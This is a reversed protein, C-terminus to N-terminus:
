RERRHRGRREGGVRHGQAFSEPLEALLLYGRQKPDLLSFRFSAADEAEQRNIRGNLATDMAAVPEPIRLLDFRGAGRPIDLGSKDRRTARIDSDPMYVDEGAGAQIVGDGGYTGTHLESALSDEYRQLERGDIVGDHDLDLSAFFRLFDATFESQTLKGDHNADARAFWDAVPYPADAPARFAEGSPAIFVQQLASHRPAAPLAEPAAQAALLALTIALM